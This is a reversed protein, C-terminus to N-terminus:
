MILLRQYHTIVLQGREPSRLANIGSSVVQLADIDLGSDIEDLVMFAPELVLAQLIENRKKEGGSFGANLGREVFDQPLALTKLKDKLLELFDFADIPPLGNAKRHLNLATRM